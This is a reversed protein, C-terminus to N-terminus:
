LTKNILIKNKKAYEKAAKKIKNEDMMIQKKYINTVITKGNKTVIHQECTTADPIIQTIGGFINITVNNKKEM